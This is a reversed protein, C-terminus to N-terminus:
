IKGTEEEKEEDDVEEKCCELKRGNGKCRALVEYGSVLVKM